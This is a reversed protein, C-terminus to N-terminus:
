EPNTAPAPPSGLNATFTCGSGTELTPAQDVASMTDPPSAFINTGPEPADKQQRPWPLLDRNGNNVKRFEAEAGTRGVLLGLALILIAIVFTKIM